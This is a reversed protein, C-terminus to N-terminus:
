EIKIEIMDANKHRPSAIPVNYLKLSDGPLKNYVNIATMYKIIKIIAKIKNFQKKVRLRRAMIDQRKKLEAKRAATPYLKVTLEYSWNRYVQVKIIDLFAFFLLSTAMVTIGYAWGCEDSVAGFISIFMAFVQTGFIAIFFILSPKNTWFYGELRTSFIVFHPSSSLQLYMVTGLIDDSTDLVYRGICYHGLSWGALLIGMILSMTILQGLRWKDPKKNICANDWSIVVTAADNLLTIFVILIPPIFFDFALIAVFLFILFHITSTIRYLAYSRMRQFIARSTLISDVIAGLGPELLVISAASRAADTAGHVAIGVEAKKLAPADNVGDGTMAVRYNDKQLLEVVRYKDEPVVQAFGDCKVIREIVENDPGQLARPPLINRNIGLRKAVERAILLADGTVMKPVLGYEKCKQLTEASDIRPPDLLSLLGIFEWKILGTEVPNEAIELSKKNEITADVPQSRCVGLARLGARAMRSVAVRAEESENNCLKLIVQPAGKAVCIIKNEHLIVARTLKSVPDFPHFAVQTYDGFSHEDEVGKLEKVTLCAKKRICSEIADSNGAESALFATLLLDDETYSPVLYPKDITLKNQTLTGTKDSCLISISAMQEVASLKKVICNKKALQKAGVAMTVSMVTPLGVPISAIILVLAYQISDLTPLKKVFISVFVLIAVMVLTIVILFNGIKAILKQFHGADKSISILHAAKGIFTSEGIKTVLALSHGNKVISSSMLNDGRKKNVPLSEGTLGSQDKIFRSQKRPGKFDCM